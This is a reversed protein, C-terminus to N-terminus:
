MIYLGILITVEITDYTRVIILLSMCLHYWAFNFFGRFGVSTECDRPISRKSSYQANEAEHKELSVIVHWWDDLSEETDRCFADMSVYM